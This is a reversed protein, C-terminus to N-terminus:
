KEEENVPQGSKVTGEKKFNFKQNSPKTVVIMTTLDYGESTILDRNVRIISQGARVQSGQQALVDFGQGKLNVTDIGIHVLIEARTKSTIGFAHGTPFVTTLEGNAPACIFDNDLKLAVGQGLAGSAFAPDKVSALPLLQGDSVAVIAEDAM